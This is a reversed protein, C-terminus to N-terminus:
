YISVSEGLMECGVACHSPVCAEIGGSMWRQCFHECSDVISSFLVVQFPLFSLNMVYRRYLHLLLQSQNRLAWLWTVQLSEKKFPLLVLQKFECVKHPAEKHIVQVLSCYDVVLALCVLLWGIRDEQGLYNVYPLFLAFKSHLGCFLFSLGHNESCRIPWFFGLPDM